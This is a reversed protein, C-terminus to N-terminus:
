SVMHYLMFSCCFISDRQLCSLLSEPM